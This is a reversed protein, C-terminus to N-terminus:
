FYLDVGDRKSEHAGLYKEASNRAPLTSKGTEFPAQQGWRPWWRWGRAVGLHAKQLIILAHFIMQWPMKQLEYYDDDEQWFQKLINGKLSGM